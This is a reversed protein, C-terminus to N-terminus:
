RILDADVRTEVALAREFAIEAMAAEEASGVGAGLTSPDLRADFALNGLAFWATGIDRSRAKPCPAFGAKTLIAPKGPCVIAFLDSAAARTNGMEIEHLASDLAASVDRVPEPM